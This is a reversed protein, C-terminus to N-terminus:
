RPGTCREFQWPSGIMSPVSSKATPDSQRQEIFGAKTGPSDIELISSPPSADFSVAPRRFWRALDLHRLLM